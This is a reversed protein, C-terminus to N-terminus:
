AVPLEQLANLLRCEAETLDIFEMDVLVGRDGHPRASRVKGVMHVTVSECPQVDIALRRGVLDGPASQFVTAGVGTPSIDFVDCDVPAALPDDEFDCRGPWALGLAMALGHDQRM